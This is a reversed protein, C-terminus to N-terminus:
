YLKLTEKLGFISHVHSYAECKNTIPDYTWTLNPFGHILFDFELDNFTYQIISEIVKYLGLQQIIDRNIWQPEDFAITKFDCDFNNFKFKSYCITLMTKLDMSTHNEILEQIRWNDRIFDAMYFFSNGRLSGTIALEMADQYTISFLHKIVIPVYFIYDNITVNNQILTLVLWFPVSRRYTNIWNEIMDCIWILDVHNEKFTNLEMLEKSHQYKRMPSNNDTFPDVTICNPQDIFNSTFIHKLYVHKLIKSQDKVVRFIKNLESRHLHYIGNKVSSSVSDINKYIVEPHILSLIQEDLDELLKVYNM